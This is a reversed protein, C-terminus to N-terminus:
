DCEFVLDIKILNGSCIEKISVLRADKWEEKKSKLKKLNEQALTQNKFGIVSVYFTNLFDSENVKIIEFRRKLYKRKILLASDQSLFKQVLIIESNHSDLLLSSSTNNKPSASYANFFHFVKFSLYFTLLVFLFFLFIRTWFNRRRKNGIKQEKFNVTSIKKLDVGTCDEITKLIRKANYSIIKGQGNEIAKAIFLPDFTRKQGRPRVALIYKPL